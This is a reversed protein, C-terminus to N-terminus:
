TGTGDQPNGDSTGDPAQGTRNDMRLSHVDKRAKTTQRMLRALYWIIAVIVLAVLVIFILESKGLM